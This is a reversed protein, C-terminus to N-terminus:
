GKVAGSVLGKIIQKQMTLFLLIPPLILIMGYALICNWQTGYQNMFNYIGATLPRMEPKVNFTMSYALDNWAMVFGFCAATVIGSKTVPLAIRIFATFTNCGDIKASEELEAPTDAFIPRILLIVFPVSITSTALIPAFYTNLLGIKSFSLYLPTLVLSAPLMQTALFLLIFLSKGKVKFRGLGYGAPLSLCLSLIMSSIAIVFSNFFPRGISTLQTTYAATSISKPLFTPPNAFIEGDPKFSCMFAYFVPFLFIIAIAIAAISASLSKIKKRTVM